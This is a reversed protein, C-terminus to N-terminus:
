EMMKECREVAEAASVNTFIIDAISNGFKDFMWAPIFISREIRDKTPTIGGRCDVFSKYRLEGDRVDLEFSGDFIGFNARCVLEAMTAIKEADVSLPCYAYVLYFDSKTKVIFDVKKLRGRIDLSFDFWGLQDDFSFRWDGATLYKNIEGAIIESYSDNM